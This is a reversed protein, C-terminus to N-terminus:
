RTQNPRPADETSSRFVPIPKSTGPVAVPDASDITVVSGIPWGLAFPPSALNRTDRIAVPAAGGSVV